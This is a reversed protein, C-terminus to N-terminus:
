GLEKLQLNAPISVIRQRDKTTNVTAKLCLRKLMDNTFHWSCALSQCNQTSAFVYTNNEHVGADRRREKSTLYHM